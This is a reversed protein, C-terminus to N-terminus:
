QKFVSGIDRGFHKQRFSSITPDRYIALENTGMRNYSIDGWPYFMAQSGLRGGSAQAISQGFALTLVDEWSKEKPLRFDFLKISKGQISGHFPEQIEILAVRGERLYVKTGIAPIAYAESFKIADEDSGSPLPIAETPWKSAQKVQLWSDGLNAVGRIGSYLSIELHTAPPGNEFCAPVLALPVVFALARIAKIKNM